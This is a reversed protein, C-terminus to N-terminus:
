DTLARLAEAAYIRVERDPDDLARRLAAEAEPAQLQAFAVMLARRVHVDQPEGNLLELLPGVARRSGISGLATV